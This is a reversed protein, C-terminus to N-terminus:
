ELPELEGGEISSGHHLFRPHHLPTLDAVDPGVDSNVGGELGSDQSIEISPSAPDGGTAPQLAWLAESIAQLKLRENQHPGSDAGLMMASLRYGVAEDRPPQM